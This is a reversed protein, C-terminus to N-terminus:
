FLKATLWTLGFFLTHGTEGDQRSRAAGLDVVVQPTIAHSVAFLWQRANPVNRQQIGSYEATLGWDGLNKSLGLAWPLATRSEGNAHLGLRTLGLNADLRWSEDFDLSAIGNVMWDTKGSGLRKGATPSKFGAEIGFNLNEDNTAIRHKLIFSTDGFGSHRSGQVTERVHAEGGLLIGWDEDFAIKATYPLSERRMDNGRIRAWGMEIELWGPASLEAPNSVSPRYPTAALEDAHASCAAFAALMGAQIIRHTM